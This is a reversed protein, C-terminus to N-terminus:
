ELVVELNTIEPNQLFDFILFQLELAKKDASIIANNNSVSKIKRPFHYKLTYTQVLKFSVLQKKYSEIKEKEKQFIDEDTITVIRNFHNGNLAFRVNYYHEEATLAYNHVLDSVYNETKSLDAIDEVKQFNQTIITRFEKDFASKKIHVNVNKFKSFLDQEPQTYKIFNDNHKNIYDQFVYTTDSFVTEKSYNEGAIQMYSNEDRHENIEITGSGDPNIHITETVQCSTAIAILLLYFCYKM